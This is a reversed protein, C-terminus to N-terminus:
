AALSREFTLIVATCVDDMGGACGDRSWLDERFGRGHPAKAMENAEELPILVLSALAFFAVPFVFTVLSGFFIAMGLLWLVMGLYM